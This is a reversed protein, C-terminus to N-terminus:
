TGVMRAYQRKGAQLSARHVIRRADEHRLKRFPAVVRRPCADRQRTRKRKVQRHVTRQLHSGVQGLVIRFEHIGELKDLIHGAVPVVTLVQLSLGAVVDGHCALRLAGVVPENAALAVLVAVLSHHFQVEQVLAAFIVAGDIGVRLIGM